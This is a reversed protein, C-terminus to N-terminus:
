EKSVSNYYNYFRENLHKIQKEYYKEMVALVYHPFPDMMQMFSSDKVVLARELADPKVYEKAAATDGPIVYSEAQLPGYGAIMFFDQELVISSDRKLKDNLFVGTTNGNRIADADDLYFFYVPCFDFHKHFYKMIDQNEEFQRQEMRDAVYDQDHERYLAIATSRTNLSVLLAGNEKLNIICDESYQKKWKRYKESYEEEQAQITFVTLLAFLIAIGKKM